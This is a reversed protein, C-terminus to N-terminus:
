VPRYHYNPVLATLPKRMLNYLWFRWASIIYIRSNYRSHLYFPSFTACGVRWSYALWDSLCSRSNALREREKERAVGVRGTACLPLRYTNSINFASACNVIRRRGRQRSDIAITPTSRVPTYHQWKYPLHRGRDQHYHHHHHHHSLALLFTGIPLSFPTFLRKAAVQYARRNTCGEDHNISRKDGFIKPWYSMQVYIIAVHPGHFLFYLLFRM